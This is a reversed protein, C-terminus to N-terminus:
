GRSFLGSPKLALVIVMPVFVTFLAFEPFFVKGFNDVAGVFLSGVLAGLLSGRGGIIIVVLALLLIELEVGPYAGILPGGLVGAAGALFAGLAFVMVSIFRVDIGLGEAIEEDDVSARVMMGIRTKEQFLWLLLAILGGVLMVFLRYFPFIMQGIRVGGMLATPKDLFLPEGGWALLATDAFVFTFGMTLLVQPLPQNYFRQLFFREMLVGIIAISVGAALFALLFNGTRLQVEIGIYVGLLYYAGQALNAIKMLGFMLTLGSALLFLLMGFSLANLTHIIWIGM